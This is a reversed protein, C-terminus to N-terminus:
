SRLSDVDVGHEALREILRKRLRADINRITNLHQRVLGERDAKQLMEGTRKILTASFDTMDNGTIPVSDLDYNTDPMRQSKTKPQAAEGERPKGGDDVQRAAGDDTTPKGGGGDTRKDQAAGSGGDSSANRGTVAGSSKDEPEARGNGAATRPAENQARGGGNNGRDDNANRVTGAASRGDDNGGARKDADQRVPAERRQPETRQQQGGGPARQNNGNNGGGNNSGSNANANGGGSRRMDKAKNLNATKGNHAYEIDEQRGNSAMMMGFARGLLTACRKLGDSAAGKVAMGYAEKRSKGAEVEGSGIGPECFVTDTGDATIRKITLTVDSIVQVTHMTTKTPQNNKQITKEEEWDDISHIKAVVGWGLPGFVSNLQDAIIDVKLFSQITNGGGPRNSIVAKDVPRDIKAAIEDSVHLSSPYRGTQETM